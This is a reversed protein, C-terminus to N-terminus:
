LGSLHRTVWDADVAGSFWGRLDGSRRVVDIRETTWEWVLLVRQNLRGFPTEYGTSSPAAATGRLLLPLFVAHHVEVMTMATVSSVGNSATVVATYTDAAGYTHTVVTGYGTGGDGFDWTYTIDTGTAVSATFVTSRGLATPGDNTVILEATVQVADIYWEDAYDGEYRFALYIAQGAYASLDLAVPRWVDEQGPGKYIEVFDDDKPDLSGTSVYVRHGGYSEVYNEYQWFVLRSGVAPTVPPTVLWADQPGHDDNHYISYSGSHSRSTTVQWPIGGSTVEILQWGELPEGSEFGEEFLPFGAVLEIKVSATATVVSVANSATVVATYTGVEPYVHTVVAGHAVTGDGLDWTFGVNSGASVTASLTTVAGLETPSDDAAALGAIPEEVRVRTTATVVSVLNSATVVATYVSHDAYVHAVVGGTVAGSGDDPDWTYSVDSGSAVTATLTTPLGLPTVSDNTAVLGAIAEEVVVTTSATAEDVPNSATVVATYTGVAPYTHSVLDGVVLGSGDGPDWVYSVENGVVITATLVTREGLTTPSSSAAALGGIREEVTVRTTATLTSVANWARVAATYVGVAPYIHTVVPGTDTEGSADGFTWEYAVDTGAAVTATMRTAMGLPTVSDNVAVLGAVPEEIVVRTTATVANIANSATVVATYAGAAPYVHTVVQGEIQGMGDGPDWIFVADRGVLVTASLTTTEGLRTVSDNTASLGAVMERVEVTTTSTFVGLQNSATVVATYDGPATYIDTVVPGSAITGDGLDWEYSVNSGAAVTATLTTPLGLPTLSDNTAALGAIADEVMVATSATVEDVANSATVVATYEGFAAYTHSVVPGSAIMGDGLDWEYSVNSGSAVTTTLTTPLGLPTLSDNTAVLGTISEEVLVSTTDTLLGVANSATVVATYVGPVAYTHTVTAGSGFSGDGFAWQYVVDSGQASATLTAPEGQRTPSDNGASLNAIVDQVVVTTTTTMTNITNAATLVVTHAGLSMYTHSFVRGHAITGDGLDWTYSINTGGVQATLVATAGFTTPGDYLAILDATVAVDDVAWEDANEGVYRFAIYVPQGAYASLDIRRENWQNPVDPGVEELLVYENQKPDPSGTSVWVGHHVYHDSYREYQWFVLESNVQPVVVPMVMWSEEGGFLDDHFAADQGTRAYAPDGARDWEYDDSFERLSFDQWGAALEHEDSEFSEELLPDGVPIDVTIPVTATLLSVDNSATVSATYRGASYTYSVVQGTAVSGDGFAWDFAVSSGTEITATFVTLDGLPVPAVQNLSLGTIPQYTSVMVDRVNDELIFDTKDSSVTFIAGLNGTTTLPVGIVFELDRSQGDTLTGLDCTAHSDSLTCGTPLSQVTAVTPLDVELTTNVAEAPGTNQVAVTYTLPSATIAPEASARATLTLDAVFDGEAVSVDFPGVRTHNGAVDYADLMLSYQGLMAFTREYRWTDGAHLPTVWEANGDPRTVQLQSRSWDVGSGDTVTGSLVVTPMGLVTGAVSWDVTVVPAAIDVRLLRTEAPASRNGAGDVGYFYMKQWEGDGSGAIPTRVQWTGTVATGPKLDADTCAADEEMGALDTVCVRMGSAQRDDSVSGSLWLEDPGLLGDAMRDETTTDLAITPTVTDVTFTVPGTWGSVNGHRDVARMGMAFQTGDAAAGVDWPCSWAGDSPTADTCQLTDVVVGGPVSRVELTITPVASADQVVGMVTNTYAHVYTVPTQIALGQPPETDVQHLAWLWEFLGHTGDAVEAQVEASRDGPSAVITGTILVDGSWGSLTRTQTNGGTLQLAGQATLTVAAGPAAQAGQNEFTLTYTVLQGNGLPAAQAAVPLEQDPVGDLDADLWQGPRLVAQLDHELFGVALGGPEAELDVQLDADAFRGASPCVGSGLAPWQLYHTLTFPQDLLGLAVGNVVRTSNLPNKDPLAAWLRLVEEESAVALLKMPDGPGIGLADFPIRLDTQLPTLMGDFRYADTLPQSAWAGGSWTLLQAKNSNEVWILADAAMPVGGQTPLTITPGSSYPDYLTTTGGPGTDLYIFLDGQIDWDAGTYALRLAETDWTVYLRQTDSMAATSPANRALERDAGVQTCGSEMWGHYDLDGTYDPTLASDVYIPGLTEWRRNGFVDQAAVHTYWVEAEGATAEHHRPAGPAYAALAGAAPEETHTWGVLYGGLGSGDSSAAWDISLTPTTERIVQLATLAGSSLSGTYSLSVTVPTPQQLDVTVAQTVTVARAADEARATVTYVEGDPEAGLYWPYRWTVDDFAAADQQANTGTVLVDELGVTDTAVGSLLVRGYSLRHALTIVTTDLTLHPASTDVTVTIPQLEVQVTRDQDEVVSTIGYRGEGPPTWTPEWIATTTNTVPWVIQDTFGDSVTVTIVRVNNEAHAVVTLTVSNTTTLVAEHSPTLVTSALPPPVYDVPLARALLGGTDNVMAILPLTATVVTCRDYRDCAQLSVPDTQFGAVVCDPTLEYLRRTDVTTVEQWWPDDYYHRDAAQVACPFDLEDEVLNIDQAWGSYVTQAAPEAGRYTVTIAARPALTDIEGQWQYDTSDVDNRNGLLDTGRLHIQYIGDLGAPVTHSWTSTITGPSSLSSVPTWVWATPTLATSARVFAIELGSIGKAVSGTDTVVGGISLTQTIVGSVVEASDLSAAPPRNDVRLNFQLYNTIPTTNSLVDAARVTLTYAGTPNALAEGGANFPALVYDLAWANGPGLAARQWGDGFPSVLVEVAALGSGSDAATGALALSWRDNGQSNARLIEDPAISSTLTEPPTRDLTVTIQQVPGQNGAVDEAYVRLTRPGDPLSGADWNYAWESAGNALEWGSGADVYVAAVDTNDNATGGIVLTGSEALYQGDSLSTFAATPAEADVIVQVSDSFQYDGLWPEVRQLFVQELSIRRPSSSSTPPAPNVLAACEATSPDVVAQNCALGQTSLGNSLPISEAALTDEGEGAALRPQGDADLALVKLVGGESWSVMWGGHTPDYAVDPQGIGTGSAITFEPGLVGDAVFRGRVTASGVTYVVLARDNVPDYAVHPYRESSGTGAVVQATGITQGSTSLHVLKVDHQTGIAQEWVLLYRDGVWVLDPWASNSDTFPVDYEKPNIGCDVTQARMRGVDERYFVSLFNTGDSAVAPWKFITNDRGTHTATKSDATETANNAAVATPACLRVRDSNVVTGYLRNIYNPIIYWYIRLDGDGDDIRQSDLGVDQYHVTVSGVKDDGNPWDDEEWITFSLSDVFDYTWGIDKTTGDAFDKPGWNPGPIDIYYEGHSGADHETYCHLKTLRVEADHNYEDDGWLVFCEGTNEACAVAPPANILGAGTPRPDASALTAGGIAGQAFRFRVGAGGQDDIYKSSLPDAAYHGETTVLAYAGQDSGFAPAIASYWPWNTTTGTASAHPPDWDWRIRLDGDHLRGATSGEITLAANESGVVTLTQTMVATHDPAINYNATYRGGGLQAPMTTTMTGTTYLTVSLNNAVTTTFVFSAGPRVIGDEDSMTFYFAVPSENWVAPHFPYNAPDMENLTKEMEDGMGDGDSDRQLPDSFVRVTLTHPAGLTDTYTHTLTWGGLWEITDGDTDSDTLDQHYVELGDDLGDGDSDRLTPDTNLEIEQRDTLGDNDTDADLPSVATGNARLQLEYTDSLGDGDADWTEDNPDNGGFYPNLLGDGDHDMQHLFENNGAWALAYFEDLTDPLVDLVIAGTMDNSAHDKIEDHYCIAISFGALVPISWCSVAPLAYGTNLVMPLTANIGAMLTPTIAVTTAMSGRYLAKGWKNRDYEVTWDKKVANIDTTVTNTVPTLTYEFSTRRLTDPTYFIWMYGLVRDDEPNKHRATTTIPFTIKVSNGEVMGLDPNTLDMGLGGTEVDTDVLLQYHYLQEAIKNTIWGTISFDSGFVWLLLDIISVLAVLIAGVVTFTLAFMIIAAITSAITQALLQNFAVSSLNNSAVAYIFVGWAIGVMIVLAVVAIVKAAKSLKESSKLAKLMAAGRTLKETAQLTKVTNVVARVPMVVDLTTQVVATLVGVTIRAAPHEEYYDAFLAFSMTAIGALAHATAGAVVGWNVKAKFNAWYNRARTSTPIGGKGKFLPNIHWVVPDLNKFKGIWNEAIALITGAASASANALAPKDSTQWHTKLVRDGEQVVNVAGKYVATYLVQVALLKGAAANPDPDVLDDAYRRNLEEWYKDMPCSQWRATVADYKYPAWSMAAITSQKVHEPNLDLTLKSGDWKVSPTTTVLQASDLNLGRVHEERLVTITPTIPNAAQWHSTFTDSLISTTETMAITMAAEDQHTYTQTIVTLTDTVNFRQELTVGDNTTHNFRAYVDAIGFREGSDNTSGALFTNELGYALAFLPADHTLDDDVAPDEYVLAVDVGHDEHVNLGTLTWTDNYEYIPQERNLEGYRTCEGDKYEECTDLLAQVVWVVRVEQPSTWAAQPKYLMKAYFALREGGEQETVLQLPAYVNVGGDPRNMTAIGYKQLLSTDLNGKDGASVGIRLMPVLKIDGNDNPSLNTDPHLDYFTAGDGDQISGKKDGPWDLVNYAFWLRDPNTPRLQFEVYTVKDQELNKIELHFPNTSSFTQSSHVYPSLDHKDPVGDGDDDFDFVDPIGDADTDDPQGDNNADWQEGDGKGDGNTDEKLPDLYWTRGGFSFGDTEEKDTLLDGDSDESDLNAGLLAEVYDTLGDGDTDTGDEVEPADMFRAGYAGLAASIADRDAVFPDTGLVTEEVDTFGDADTDLGSDRGLANLAEGASLGSDMGAELEQLAQVMESEQQRTEWEEREARQRESYAAAQASQTLPSGVLSSLLVVVVAAYLKRSRRYAVLLIVFGITSLAFALNRRTDPSPALRSILSEAPVSRPAFDSFTVSIEGQVPNGENDTLQLHLEQRLPYGSDTVWLEGDGIMEAYQRPLELEVGPPLEGKEMAQRQLQDRVYAAFRPGDIQFAYRTYAIGARSEQGLVEIDRAAAVFAMFDGQPAFLGTFDNIEEWEGGRARARARGDEVEVEIGSAANLVSGDQSWLTFALAEQDPDAWGELHLADQRSRRGVNTVTPLPTTTQVIDTSFRYSGSTQVNAWVAELQRQAASVTVVPYLGISLGLLCLAM